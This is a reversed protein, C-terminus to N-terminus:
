VLDETSQKDVSIGKPLNYPEINKVHVVEIEEGDPYEVLEVTVGNGGAPFGVIRYPARWYPLISKHATTRDHEYVKVIDGIKFTHEPHRKDYGRKM